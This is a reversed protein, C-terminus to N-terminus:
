YRNRTEARADGRTCLKETTAKRIVTPVGENLQIEITGYFRGQEFEDLMAGLKKLLQDRNM